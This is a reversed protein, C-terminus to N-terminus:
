AAPALYPALQQLAAAAHWSAIDHFSDDKAADAHDSIGRIGVWGGGTGAATREYFARGVGANETEVALIKDNFATLFARIDSEPAALVATGSGIVGAHIRFSRTRGDPDCVTVRCPEGRDSFFNNIGRRVPVPVQWSTGRRRPGAPTEKRADYEVVELAVVVDGLQVSPHIGGAIGTLATVAPAYDDQLEAFAIAASLPGPALARTAVTRVQRLGTEILAEEFRMGDGREVVRYGGSRALMKGVAQTEEPLVTIVGLDWKERPRDGPPDQATETERGTSVNVPANFNMTGRGTQIIGQNVQQRGPQKSM